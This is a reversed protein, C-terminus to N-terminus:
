FKLIKLHIEGDFPLFGPNFRNTPYNAYFKCPNEDFLLKSQETELLENLNLVTGDPHKKSNRNLSVLTGSVEKIARLYMKVQNPTMEGLSAVNFFLLEDKQFNTFQQAQVLSPSDDLAQFSKVFFCYDLFLNKQLNIFTIMVEPYLFKLLSGLFGFGDGIIVIKKSKQFDIISKVKNILIAHKVMDFCLLRGTRISIVCVALLVRPNCKYKILLIINRSFQLLFLLNTIINLPTLQALGGEAIKIKKPLRRDPILSIQIKPLFYEWHSSLHNGKPESINVLTNFLNEVDKRIRLSKPLNLRFHKV